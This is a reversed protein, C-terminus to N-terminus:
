REKISDWTRNLQAIGAEEDITTLKGNELLINGRCLVTKINGRDASFAVASYPDNMPTTGAQKMDLILIDADKGVEVTGMSKERGLAKAGGYTAYRLMEFPTIRKEFESDGVANLLLGVNLEKLLNLNNNSSAGDTGLAINLKKDKWKQLPAIGSGLKCNSCPNHVLSTDKGRLMDMESDTLHVAHALYTPTADLIGLSDLYMAPTMHFEKLSDEVEKRTESIHTHLRTGLDKALDSAFRYSQATTTYIAHPAANIEIMGDNKLIKELPPMRQSLRKRSEELDGFFTFGLNAKMGAQYVARATEYAFFYMDSFLVTGSKIMEALGVISAAHIDDSNLKDEIPFIENLWQFLNGQDKYNRMLVMSLHTHANVFAPMVICSSADIIQDAIFSSPIKGVHAIRGDSIALDGTILNEKHTMPLILGNRIITNM